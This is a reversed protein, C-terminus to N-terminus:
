AKHDPKWNHIKLNQGMPSVTYGQEMCWLLAHARVDPHVNDDFPVTGDPRIVIGTLQKKPEISM